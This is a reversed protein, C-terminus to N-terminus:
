THHNGGNMSFYAIGAKWGAKILTWLWYIATGLGGIIWLWIAKVSWKKLTKVEKHFVDHEDVRQTLHLIAQTHSGQIDQIGKIEHVMGPIKMVEDGMMKVFMKETREDIRELRDKDEKEM